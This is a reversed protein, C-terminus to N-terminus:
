ATKLADEISGRIEGLKSVLKGVAVNHRDNPVNTFVADPHSDVYIRLKNIVDNIEVLKESRFTAVLEGRKQANILKQFYTSADSFIGLISDLALKDKELRDIRERSAKKAEADLRTFDERRFFSTQDVQWRIFLGAYWAAFIAGGAAILGGSLNEFSRLLCGVWAAGGFKGCFKEGGSLGAQALVLVGLVIAMLVSALLAGFFYSGIKRHPPIPEAKSNSPM